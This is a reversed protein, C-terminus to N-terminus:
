GNAVTRVAVFREMDHWDEGNAQTRHIPVRVGAITLQNDVLAVDRWSAFPFRRKIPGILAHIVVEDNSFTVYTAGRLMLIGGLLMVLGLWTYLGFVFAVHGLAVSAAVPTYATAIAGIGLSIPLQVGAM